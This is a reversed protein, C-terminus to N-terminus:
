PDIHIGLQNFSNVCVGDSDERKRRCCIPRPTNAPKKTAITPNMRVPLPKHNKDGSMPKTNAHRITIPLQGNPERLLYDCHVSRVLLRDFHYVSRTKARPCYGVPM